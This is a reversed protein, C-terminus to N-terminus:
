IQLEVCFHVWATVLRRNRFSNAMGHNGLRKCHALSPQKVQHPTALAAFEDEGVVLVM